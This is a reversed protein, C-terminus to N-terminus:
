SITREPTPTGTNCAARRREEARCPACIFAGEPIRRGHYHAGVDCLARGAIAAMLHWPGNGTCKGYLRVVGPPPPPM